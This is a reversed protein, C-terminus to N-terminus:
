SETISNVLQLAVLCNKEVFENTERMVYPPNPPSMFASACEDVTAVCAGISIAALRYEGKNYNVLANDTDHVVGVDYQKGCYNLIRKVLPDTTQKQLDLIHNKAEKGKENSVVIALRILEGFNMGRSRKDSSLMSFCFDPNRARGCLDRIVQLDPDEAAVVNVSKSHMVVVALAALSVVVLVRRFSEMMM